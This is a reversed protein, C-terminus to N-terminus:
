PRGDRPDLREPLVNVWVELDTLIRALRRPNEHWYRALLRALAENERYHAEEGHGVSGALSVYEGPDPRFAGAGRKKAWSVVMRAREAPDGGNDMAWVAVGLVSGTPEGLFATRASSPEIGLGRAVMGCFGADAVGDRADDPEAEPQPFGLREPVSRESM